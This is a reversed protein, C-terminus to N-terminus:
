VLKSKFSHTLIFIVLPNNAIEIHDEDLSQSKKDNFNQRKTTTLWDENIKKLSTKSSLKSLEEKLNSKFDYAIFGFSNRKNFQKREQLDNNTNIFEKSNTQNNLFKCKYLAWSM